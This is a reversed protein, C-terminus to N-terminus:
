SLDGFANQRRFFRLLLKAGFQSVQHTTHKLKIGAFTEGNGCDFWVLPQLSFRSFGSWVFWM